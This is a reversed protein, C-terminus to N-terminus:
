PVEMELSISTGEWNSPLKGALRRLTSAEVKVQLFLKNVLMILIM